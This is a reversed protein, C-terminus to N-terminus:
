QFLWSVLRSFGYDLGFILLTILILTILVVKSYSITEEKNPWLVKALEVKVEAFYNGIRKGLGPRNPNPPRRGPTASSAPRRSTPTGDETMQGQKQLMRKTERNM